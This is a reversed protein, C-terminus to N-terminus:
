LRMMGNVFDGFKDLASPGKRNIENGFEDIQIKGANVADYIDEVEPNSPLYPLTDIRPIWKKKGYVIRPLTAKKRAPPTSLSKRGRYTEGSSPM